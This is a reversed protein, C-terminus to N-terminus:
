IKRLFDIFLRRAKIAIRMIALRKPAEDGYIVINRDKIRIKSDNYAIYLRKMSHEVAEHIAQVFEKKRTFNHRVVFLTADSHKNLLVADGFLGIAPTDLIIYDYNKRLNQLMEATRESEIMEDPNPPIPGALLIDLNKTFSKQILTQLPINHMLHMTIGISSDLNLEEPNFPRRFDFGVYLTRKGTLAYVSALNLAVFSKGEEITSSTVLIVQENLERTLNLKIRIIRFLETLYSNPSKLVPVFSKGTNESIQGAIPVSTNSVVDEIGLVRNNLVVLFFLFLAPLLIAWIAANVLALRPSKSVNTVGSSGAIDVIEHDPTNSARQIEVETKRKRLFDYLNLLMKYKREMELYERELSPLNAFEENLHWLRDETQQLKSKSTEIVSRMSERMSEKFEEIKGNLIKIYPNQPNSNKLLADRERILNSLDGAAANFMPLNVGMSSPMLIEDLDERESVYDYLYQYYKIDMQLNKIDKSESDINKLLAAVKEQLVMFRNDKRFAELMVEMEGLEDGLQVLQKEIFLITNTLIQNKKELNSLLFEQTLQNLYDAEKQKNAGTSTVVLVSTGREIQVKTKNMYQGTLGNLDNILFAYQNSVLDDVNIGDKWHISFEYGDGSLIDGMKYRVPSMFAPFEQSFLEIEVPSIVKVQIRKYLIKWKDPNYQVLFPSEKYIENYIYKGKEYYSVSFDLKEIIKKIQAYSKLLSIQNDILKSNLLLPSSSIQGREQLVSSNSKDEILVTTRLSYVPEIFQNNHRAWLLAILLFGAFLYWNKLYKKLIRKFDIDQKVSNVTKGM